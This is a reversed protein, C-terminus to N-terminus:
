GGDVLPALWLHVSVFLGTLMRKSSQGKKEPIATFRLIVRPTLLAGKVTQAAVSNRQSEGLALSAHM